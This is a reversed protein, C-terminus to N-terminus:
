YVGPKGPAAAGARFAAALASTRSALLDVDSGVAVFTFGLSLYRRALAEDGTVIGVAKGAAQIRRGADEIVAQMRPGMPDNRLGLSASLDAPGVFVGDVGDVAAIADLNELGRRTEVQALLCIQGDAQALYDAERGWRAARVVGPAVGRVGDPPYRVARVLEAAEEATEVMPILLTTFGVDLYQKILRREGAPPRAVAHVPYAAVAQLQALLLPLDNPGHEGDFVLWDFGADACIEATYASALGQWLGIQARGERLAAKFANVAVPM